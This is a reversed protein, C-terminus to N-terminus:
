HSGGEHWSRLWAESNIYSYIEATSSAIRSPGRALVLAVRDVDLLREQALVGGLLLERAMDINSFLADKVHEEVGGKVTAM